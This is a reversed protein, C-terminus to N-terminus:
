RFFQVACCAAGAADLAFRSLKCLLFRRERSCLDSAAIGNCKRCDRLFVILCVYTWTPRSSPDVSVNTTHINLIWVLPAHHKTRQHTHEFLAVCAEGARSDSCVLRDRPCSATSCKHTAGPDNRQPLHTMKNAKLLIQM